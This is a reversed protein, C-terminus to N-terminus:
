CCGRSAGAGCCAAGEFFRRLNEPLPAAPESAAPPTLVARLVGEVILGEPAETWSRGQWTWERCDVGGASPALDSCSGCSSEAFGPQLDRGDVLLTPSTRMGLREAEEASRVHTRRVELEVGMARLAPELLAAARTLSDDTARCRTCRTNDLYLHDVTVTKNM